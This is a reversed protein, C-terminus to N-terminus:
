PLRRSHSHRYCTGCTRSLSDHVIHAQVSRCRPCHHFAQTVGFMGVSLGRKSRPLWRGLVMRTAGITATIYGGAALVSVIASRVM